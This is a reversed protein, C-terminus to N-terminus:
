LRQSWLQNSSCTYPEMTDVASFARSPALRERMLRGGLLSPAYWMSSRQKSSWSPHSPLNLVHLSMM